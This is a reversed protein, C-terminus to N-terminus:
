QISKSVKSFPISRLAKGLYALFLTSMVAQGIMWTWAVDNLSNRAFIYAGCTVFLAGISTITVIISVKLKIQLATVSIYNITMFLSTAAFIRLPTTGTISYSHGFILLIYKALIIVALCIPIVLSMVFKFTKKIHLSLADINHSSEAFMANTTVNPIVYILNAITTAIYFFASDKTGLRDTVIVPLLMPPASVMFNSIYNALSFHSVRKILKLNIRIKPVYDFRKAVFIYSLVTALAIGIAHSLFLGSSGLGLFVFPLILKCAGLGLNALLTYITRRNALFINDTVTNQVTIILYIVFGVGFVPNDKLVSLSPVFHRIGLVFISGVLLSAISVTWIISDMFEKPKKESPLFRIVANNLGLYSFLSLVTTISILTTTIGVKEPSYLHTAIIWFAFGVFALMASNLMLYISNRYLSDHM